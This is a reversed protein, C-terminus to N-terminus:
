CLPGYCIRTRMHIQHHHPHSHREGEVEMVELVEESTEVALSKALVAAVAVVDAAPTTTTSPPIYVPHLPRLKSLSM